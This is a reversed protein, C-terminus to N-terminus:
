KRTFTLGIYIMLVMKFLFQLMCKYKSFVCYASALDMFEVYTMSGLHFNRVVDEAIAAM